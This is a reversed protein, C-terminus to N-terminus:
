PERTERARSFGRGSAPAVASFSLRPAPRRDEKTANEEGPPRRLPTRRFPGLDQPRSPLEVEEQVRRRAQARPRRRDPWRRTSQAQAGCDGHAERGNGEGGEADRRASKGVAQTWTRGGM